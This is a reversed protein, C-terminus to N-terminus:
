FDRDGLCDMPDDRRSRRFRGGLFKGPVIDFAMRAVPVTRCLLMALLKGIAPDAGVGRQCRWLMTPSEQFCRFGGDGVVIQIQKCATRM